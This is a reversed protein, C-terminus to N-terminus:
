WDHAISAAASSYVEGLPGEPCVAAVAAAAEEGAARAAAICRAQLEARERVSPPLDEARLASAWAGIEGGITVAGFGRRRGNHNLKGTCIASFSLWPPRILGPEAGPGPRRAGGPPALRPQPAPVLQARRAAEDGGPAPDRPRDHRRDPDRRRPRRGDGEHRH